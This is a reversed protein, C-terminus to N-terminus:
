PLLRARLSRSLFENFRNDFHFLTIGTPATRSDRLLDGQGEAELDILVHNPANEGGVVSGFRVNAARRPQGEQAVQLVAEPTDIQEPAFRRPQPGVPNQDDHIVVRAADNSEADLSSGDITNCEAPHEVARNAPWDQRLVEAGIMIWQKPEVLPLRIQPYELYPLDLRHRVHRQRM